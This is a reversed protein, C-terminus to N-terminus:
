WITYQYLMYMESILIDISVGDAPLSWGTLNLCLAQCKQHKVGLGGSMKVRLDGPPNRLPPIKLTHLPWFPKSSLSSLHLISQNPNMQVSTQIIKKKKKEFAIIIWKHMIHSTSISFVSSAIISEWMAYWKSLQKRVIRPSFPIRCTFSNKNWDVQFCFSIIQGNNVLLKTIIKIGKKLIIETSPFYWYKATGM